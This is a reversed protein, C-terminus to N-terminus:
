RRPRKFYEVDPGRRQDIIKEVMLKRDNLIFSVPKGDAKYGFYCKVEITPM